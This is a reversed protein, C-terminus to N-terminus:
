PAYRVDASDSTAATAASGDRPLRILLPARSTSSGFTRM